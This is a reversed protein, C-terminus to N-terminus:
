ENSYQLAEKDILKHVKNELLNPDKKLKKIQTLLKESHYKLQSVEENKNNTIKDVERQKNKIAKKSEQLIVKSIDQIDEPTM